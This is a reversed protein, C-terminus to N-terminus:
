DRVRGISLYFIPGILNILVIIIAWAWKPLYKVKDKTLKFLCFIILGFQIVILPAFMKIVETLTMNDFM